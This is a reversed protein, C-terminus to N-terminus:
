IRKLGMLKHDDDFKIEFHGQIGNSEIFPRIHEAPFQVRQGTSATVIVARVTGEYYRLAEKRSINLSFYCAAAM